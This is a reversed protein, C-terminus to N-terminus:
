IHLDSVADYIDAPAFAPVSVIPRAVTYYAKDSSLWNKLKNATTVYTSHNRHEALNQRLIPFLKQNSAEAGKAMAVGNAPLATASAAAAPPRTNPTAQASLARLNQAESPDFM